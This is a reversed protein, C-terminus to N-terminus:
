KVLHWNGASDRDFEGVKTGSPDRLIITRAGIFSSKESVTSLDCGEKRLIDLCSQFDSLWDSAGGRSEQVNKKKVKDRAEPGLTPDEKLLSQRSVKFYRSAELATTYVVSYGEITLRLAPVILFLAGSIALFYERNGDQKTAMFLAGLSAGSLAGAGVAYMLSLVTITAYDELTYDSYLIQLTSNWNRANKQNARIALGAIAGILAMWGMLQYDYSM